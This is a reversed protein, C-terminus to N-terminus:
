LDFLIDVFKQFLPKPLAKTGIDSLNDTSNVHNPIVQSRDKAQIVWNWRRDIHKLRSNSTTDEMFSIAAQNDVNLEFPLKFGEIHLEELATLHRVLNLSNHLNARVIQHEM